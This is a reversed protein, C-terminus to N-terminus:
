AEAQKFDFIQAAFTVGKANTCEAYYKEKTGLFTLEGGTTCSVTGVYSSRQSPEEKIGPHEFLAIANNKLAFSCDKSTHPCCEKADKEM